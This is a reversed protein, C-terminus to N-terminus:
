PEAVPLEVWLTAGRGPESEAWIRGQHEQVIGYCIALGLGTGEGVEKTSYFPEFIRPLDEPAIGPGNDTIAVRVRRGAAETRLEIRGGPRLGIAQEANVLINLFVQQMQHPDALVPPAPAYRREVVIGAKELAYLRLELAAELIAHIDQPSREPKHKRAFALLHRVIRAAREGESAILELCRRRDAEGIRGRLLLQAFSIVSTLPNNLEHAVGAALQGIAALKDAQLLQERASSLEGSLEQNRRALARELARLRLLVRVRALLERASFPKVLYDDAGEEYGALRDALEARATLLLVPTSALAADAKLARCLDLGSPGPLMVDAVVLDPRERRALHLGQEADVATLVRYDRGLFTALFELLQGNDEVLLIRPREEA